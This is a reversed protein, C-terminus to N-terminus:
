TNSISKFIEQPDENNFYRFLYFMFLCYVEVYDLSCNVASEIFIHSFSISINSGPPAEITWSCNHNHPYSNPFNPSEIVGRRTKLVNNCVLLSLDCYNSIIRNKLVLIKKFTSYNYLNRM